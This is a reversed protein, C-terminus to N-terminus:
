SLTVGWAGQGYACVGSWLGVPLLWLRGTLKDRRSPGKNGHGQTHFELFPLKERQNVLRRPRRLHGQVTTYARPVAAEMAACPAARCFWLLSSTLHLDFVLPM